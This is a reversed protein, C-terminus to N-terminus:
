EPAIYNSGKDSLAGGYLKEAAEKETEAEVKQYDKGDWKGGPWLQVQFTAMHVERKRAVESKDSKSNEVMIELRLVADAM